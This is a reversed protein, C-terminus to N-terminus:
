SMLREKEIKMMEAKTFVDGCTTCVYEKTPIDIYFEKELVPHNCPKDGWEEKLRNARYTQM